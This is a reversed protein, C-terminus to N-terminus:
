ESDDEESKFECIHCRWCEICFPGSGCDCYISDDGRGARGTPEGCALCYELSM